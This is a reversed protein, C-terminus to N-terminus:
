VAPSDFYTAREVVLPGSFRWFDAFGTALPHGDRSSGRFTGRVAVEQGDEVVAEIRHQGEAIVRDDQYFITIAEIGVLADYGPRRYVADSAFFSLASGVDQRDICRYYTRVLAARFADGPGFESPEPRPEEAPDSVDM